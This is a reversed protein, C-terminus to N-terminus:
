DEGTLKRLDRVLMLHTLNNCVAALSDLNELAEQHRRVNSSRLTPGIVQELLAAERDAATRFVRLNRGSVGFRSLEGCAKIIERDTDDFLLRGNEQRPQVIRWEVLDRILEAPVGTQEVLEAVELHAGGRPDV